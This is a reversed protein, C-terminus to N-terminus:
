SGSFALRYLLGTLSLGDGVRGAEIEARVTPWPLWEVREAEDPDSPAGVHTASTALFVNFAADTTGNNPFYRTLPTLPGPEGVPSRSHREPPRKM